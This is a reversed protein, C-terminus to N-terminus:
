SPDTETNEGGREGTTNGGVTMSEELSRTHSMAQASANYARDLPADVTNVANRSVDM